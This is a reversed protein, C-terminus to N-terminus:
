PLTCSIIGSTIGSTIDSTYRKNQKFDFTSLHPISRVPVNVWESFIVDEYRTKVNLRIQTMQVTEEPTFNLKLWGFKGNTPEIVGFQDQVHDSVISEIRGCYVQILIYVAGGVRFPRNVPLPAEPQSDEIPTSVDDGDIDVSKYELTSSDSKQRIFPTDNEEVDLLLSGFWSELQEVKRQKSSIEHEIRNWEDWLCKDYSSM